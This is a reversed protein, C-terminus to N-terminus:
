QHLFADQSYIDLTPHILFWLLSLTELLDFIYYIKRNISGSYSVFASIVKFFSQILPQSEEELFSKKSDPLPHKEIFSSSM